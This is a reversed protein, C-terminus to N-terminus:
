GGQHNVSKAAHLLIIWRPHTLVYIVTADTVHHYCMQRRWRLQFPIRVFAAELCSVSSFPRTRFGSWVIPLGTNGLPFKTAFKSDATTESVKHAWLFTHLEESMWHSSNKLHTVMNFQQLQPGETCKSCILHSHVTSGDTMYIYTSLMQFKLVNLIKFLPAQLSQKQGM